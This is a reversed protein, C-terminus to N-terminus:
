RQSFVQEGYGCVMQGRDEPFTESLIPGHQRSKKMSGIGALCPPENKFRVAKFVWHFYDWWQWQGICHQESESRGHSEILCSPQVNDIRFICYGVASREEPFRGLM